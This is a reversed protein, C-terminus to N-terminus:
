AEVEYDKNKRIVTILAALILMVAFNISVLVEPIISITHHMFKLGFWNFLILIMALKGFWSESNRVSYIFAPLLLVFDYGLHKFTVLSVIALMSFTYFVDNPNRSLQYAFMICLLLPAVYTLVFLFPSQCMEAIFGVITMIDATGNGVALSSVDLPLTLTELPSSGVYISFVLWGAFSPATLILTAKWGRTILIYLFFPPMFSYKFFGFGLLCEGLAKRQAFFGCFALLVLASHQGSGITNRLPTSCMFVLMIIITENITCGAYACLFIVAAVFCILSTFAWLLKASEWDILTFPYLVVYTSHAYNPAQSFIIREGENGSLYYDYPNVGEWFLVSPSWQFDHSYKIANNFGQAISIAAMAGVVFFVAIRIVKVDIM